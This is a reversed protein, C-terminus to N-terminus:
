GVVHDSVRDLVERCWLETMMLLWPRPWGVRGSLFDKVGSVAAVDFIGRRSVSAPYLTDEFVDSLSTKLWVDFPM